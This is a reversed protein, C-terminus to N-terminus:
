RLNHGASGYCLAIVCSCVGWDVNVLQNLVGGKLITTMTHPFVVKRVAGSYDVGDGSFLIKEHLLLLIRRLACYM